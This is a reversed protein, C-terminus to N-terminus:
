EPVMISLHPTQLSLKDEIHTSLNIRLGYACLRMPSTDMSQTYESHTWVRFINVRSDCNIPTHFYKNWLWLCPSEILGHYGRWHTEMYEQTHNKFLYKWVCKPCVKDMLVERMILPKSTFIELTWVWEPYMHYM